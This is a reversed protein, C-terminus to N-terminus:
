RRPQTHAKAPRSITENSQTNNLPATSLPQMMPTALTYRGRRVVIADNPCIATCDMCMVCRSNDVVCTRLNICESKCVDECKGCHICKDTNIDVRYIPQRSLLGLLAGIPCLSNCYLRGRRWALTVVVAMMVGAFALSAGFAFCMRGIAQAVRDYITYPDTGYVAPMFGVLLCVGVTIPVIIRLADHPAHYKYRRNQPKRALMGCRAVADQVTGLPCATSCYVRGMSITAVLWLVIWAAAGALIAPLLQMRLLVRGPASAAFAADCITWTLATLLLLSLIIRLFRLRKYM